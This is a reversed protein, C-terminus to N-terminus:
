DAIPEISKIIAEIERIFARKNFQPGYVYGEVMFQKQSAPDYFALAYFPGGMFVGKVGDMRWLGRMEKASQEQFLISSFVPLYLKTSITMHSGSPGEVYIKNIRNKWEFLSSDSFQATDVYPRSYILIGQNIQHQFGGIPKQRDLRLWLFDSDKKAIKFDQQMILHLGTLDFIEENLANSGFAKNRSILRDLESKQFLLLIQNMQSDVVLSLDAEKNLTIIVQTQQKAFIDYRVNVSTKNTPDVRLELLNRHTKFIDSFGEANVEIITFFPEAAPLGEMEQNLARRLFDADASKWFSAPAVVLIEGQNGTNGPLYTTRSEEECCVFLLSLLPILLLKKM